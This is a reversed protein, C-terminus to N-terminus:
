IVVMAPWAVGLCVGGGFDVFGDGICELQGLKPVMVKMWSKGGSGGGGGGRVQGGGEEVDGM